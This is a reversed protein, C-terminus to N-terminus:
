SGGLYYKKIQDDHVMEESRGEQVIKGLELVYARDSLKLAMRSNQEVLLITIGMEESIQTIVKGVEQVMIPALGVSPEDMLLLKPRAMLARAVALMQQEGGSLSGGAQRSREKLIPFHRYMQELDAQIGAKDRRLYAGSLLNDLVTMPGFIRRGAPVQVIGQKVIDAPALKQIERGQYRITGKTPHLQGSIARILTTKGAGNAGVIAVVEGEDVKLSASDVAVAKGYQLVVDEVELLM